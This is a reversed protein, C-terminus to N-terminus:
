SASSPPFVVSASISKVPPTESGRLRSRPARLTCLWSLLTSKWVKALAWSCLASMVHEMRTRSQLRGAWRLWVRFNKEGRLWCLALRHLRHQAATQHSSVGVPDRRQLLHPQPLPQHLLFAHGPEEHHAHPVRPPRRVPGTGPALPASVDSKLWIRPIRNCGRVERSRCTVRTAAFSGCLCPSSPGRQGLRRPTRTRCKRSKGLDAQAVSM